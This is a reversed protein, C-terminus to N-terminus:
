TTKYGTIPPSDPITYLRNGSHLKINELTTQTNVDLTTQNNVDLTTQTNIDLTTQTNVDKPMLNWLEAGFVAFSGDYLTHASPKSRGHLMLLKAKWGLINNCYFELNM